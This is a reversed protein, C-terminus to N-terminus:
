NFLEKMKGMFSVGTIIPDTNTELLPTYECILNSVKFLKDINERKEKFSWQIFGKGFLSIMEDMKDPGFNNM